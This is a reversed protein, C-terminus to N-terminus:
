GHAGLLSIVAYVVVVLGVAAIALGFVLRADVRRIPDPHLASEPRIASPIPELEGGAPDPSLRPASAATITLTELATTLASTVTATPTPVPTGCHVCFNWEAALEGRCIACTDV